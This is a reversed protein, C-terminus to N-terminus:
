DYDREPPDYEPEYDDPEIDDLMSHLKPEIAKALEAILEPDTITVEAGDALVEVVSDISTDELVAYDHGKDFGKAGWYEYAGIGDNDWSYEFTGEIDFSRGKHQFDQITFDHDSM